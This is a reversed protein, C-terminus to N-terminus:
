GSITDVIDINARCDMILIGDRDYKILVSRYTIKGSSIASQGSNGFIMLFEDEQKRRIKRESLNFINFYDAIFDPFESDDNTKGHYSM